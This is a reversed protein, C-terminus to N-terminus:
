DLDGLVDRIRQTIVEPSDGNIPDHVSVAAHFTAHIQQELEAVQVLQDDNHRWGGAQAAGVAAIIGMALLAASSTYKGLTRMSTNSKM